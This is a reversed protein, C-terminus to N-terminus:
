GVDDGGGLSLTVVIVVLRGARGLVGDRGLEAEDGVGLRDPLIDHVLERALAARVAVVGIHRVLALEEVDAVRHGVGVALLLHELPAEDAGVLGDEVLGVEDAGKGEVGYRALLRRVEVVTRVRYVGPLELASLIITEEEKWNSM